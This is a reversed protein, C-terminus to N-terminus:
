RPTGALVARRTFYAGVAAVIALCLEPVWRGERMWYVDRLNLLLLLEDVVLGCGASRSAGMLCHVGMRDSGRVGFAGAASM